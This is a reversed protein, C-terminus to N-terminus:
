GGGDMDFQDGGFVEDVCCEIEREYVSLDFEEGSGGARGPVFFYIGDVEGIHFYGGNIKCEAGWFLGKRRSRINKDLIIIVITGIIAGFYLIDFAVTAIQSLMYNWDIM